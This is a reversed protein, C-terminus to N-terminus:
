QWCEKDWTMNCDWYGLPGRPCEGTFSALFQGDDGGDGCSGLVLTALVVVMCFLIRYCRM